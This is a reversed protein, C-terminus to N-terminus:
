AARIRSISRPRSFGSGPPCPFGTFAYPIVENRLLPARRPPQGLPVAAVPGDPVDIVPRPVHVEALVGARAPLPVSGRVVRDAVVDRERRDEAPTAIDGPRFATERQMAALRDLRDRRGSSAFGTSM